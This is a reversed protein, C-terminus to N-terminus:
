QQDVWGPLGPWNTNRDGPFYARGKLTWKGPHEPDPDEFGGAAWRMGDTFYFQHLDIKLKTATALPIAREVGARIRDIHDGLAVALTQRMGLSLPVRDPSESYFQGNGLFTTGAPMRGLDLNYVRYPRDVGNGTEPFILMIRAFVITRDTRNFLHITLNRIWDEDAQFPTTPDLTPRPKQFRGAQVVTDGLTVSTIVVPLDKSTIPLQVQRETQAAEAGEPKVYRTALIVLLSFALVSGGVVKLRKFM